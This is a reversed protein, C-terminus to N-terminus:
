NSSILSNRVLFRNNFTMPIGEGELISRDATTRRAHIHLHPESTNGSNGVKAIADGAQVLAGVKSTISGSLLHAMVIDAGECKLLIHNGAPNQQDRIGPVLNPLDNVLQSITGDCPSYLTEGFIKYDTMKQPYLGKARTGVANLKVIDLAYRQTVSPNHYNIILNNGGHGVYYIGNKIPFSLQIPDGNFFYGSPIYSSLIAIFLVAVLSNLGLNLYSKLKRPPYPPLSKARIFSKGAVVFFLFMLLFRCYYSLWDWRGALFIHLIFLAVMLLNIAWDMKSKAKSQWLGVLFVAPVVLHTIVLLGIEFLM